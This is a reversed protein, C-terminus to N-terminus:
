VGRRLTRAHARRRAVMARRGHRRRPQAAGMGRRRLRRRGGSRCRGVDASAAAFRDTAALEDIRVVHELVFRQDAVAATFPM